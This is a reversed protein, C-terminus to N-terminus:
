RNAAALSKEMDLDIPKECLVAKGSAVAQLMFTIHTDTPTGIVVADIDNRDLVASAIRRRKAASGNRLRTAAKEFPDAVVVLKANPSAAVNRRSYSWHPRRRTRRNSDHSDGSLVKHTEPDVAEPPFRAKQRSSHSPPTTPANAMEDLPLKRHTESILEVGYYPLTCGAKQLADIFAPCDGAGEGCLQRNFSSDEFLTGKIQAGVDDLEVGTIFRAPIRAVESYPSGGRAVHWHDVMLGGNPQDAGEAIKLAEAINRIPSFPMFEIAVTAGVTAVDECLKAFEDTM